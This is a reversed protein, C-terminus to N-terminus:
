HLTGLCADSPFDVAEWGTMLFGLKVTDSGAYDFARIDGQEKCGWCKSRQAQLGHSIDQMTVYDGNSAIVRFTHNGEPVCKLSCGFFSMEMCPPQTLVMLRWTPGDQDLVDEVVGPAVSHVKLTNIRKNFTVAGEYGYGLRSYYKRFYPNALPEVEISDNDVRRFHGHFEPREVEPDGVFVIRKDSIPKFFLARQITPSTKITTYWTKSVKQAQLIEHHPLHLIIREVLEWLDCVSKM